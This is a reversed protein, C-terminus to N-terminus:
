YNFKPFFFKSSTSPNDTIAWAEVEKTIRLSSPFLADTCRINKSELYKYLNDDSKGFIYTAYQLVTKESKRKGQGLIRPKLYWTFLYDDRLGIRKTPVSPSEYNIEQFEKLSVKMRPDSEDVILSTGVAENLRNMFEESIDALEIDINVKDLTELIESKIHLLKFVDKSFILNRVKNPLDEGFKWDKTQEKIFNPVSLVVYMEREERRFM